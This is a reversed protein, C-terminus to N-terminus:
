RFRQLPPPCIIITDEILQILHFYTKSFKPYEHHRSVYMINKWRWRKQYTDPELCLRHQACINYLPCPNCCKGQESVISEHHSPHETRSLSSRFVGRIHPASVRFRAHMVVVGCSGSLLPRRTQRDCTFVVPLATMAIGSPSVERQLNWRRFVEPSSLCRYGLARTPETDAM